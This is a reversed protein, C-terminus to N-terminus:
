GARGTGYRLDDAGNDVHGEHIVQRRDQIRKFRVIQAVAQDMAITRVTNEGLHQAVELVLRNGLLARRSGEVVRGAEELVRVWHLDASLFVDAGPTALIQQALTNSGALNLEVAAGTRREFSSALEGAVDRLSAAAYVVPGDPAGEGGACGATALVVTSLLVAGARSLM